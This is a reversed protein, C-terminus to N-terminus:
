YAINSTVQSNSSGTYENCTGAYNTGVIGSYFSDMGTIKDGVTRNWSKGWFIATVNTAPLIPGGHYTMNPSSTAQQGPAAGKAWHIGGVPPEARGQGTRPEQAFLAVCAFPLLSMCMLAVRYKM